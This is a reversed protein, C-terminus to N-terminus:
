HPKLGIFQTEQTIISSFESIQRLTKCKQIKVENVIRSNDNEMDKSKNSELWDQLDDLEKLYFESQMKRQLAQDLKDYGTKPLILDHHM